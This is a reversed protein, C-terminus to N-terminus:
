KHDAHQTNKDSNAAAAAHQHGGTSVIAAHVGEVFHTYSVYAEVYERGAEVSADKNKKAAAVKKFQEGIAAAMHNSVKAILEEASGDALAKDTMVIVPDISEDKLGTFPQGEGARHVRVLTEFFYRDALDRAEPGMARVAITKAFASRIEAEDDKRIWKLIPTVDGKQLAVKADTVVPGAMTDCHASAVGASLLWCGACVIAVILRNVVTKTNRM